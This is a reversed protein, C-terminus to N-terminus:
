ALAAKTSTPIRISYCAGAVLRDVSRGSGTMLIRREAFQAVVYAGAPVCRVPGLLGRLVERAAIIDEGQLVDLMNAVTERWAKESPWPLAVPTERARARRRAEALAPAAVGTSLIGERVLRELADIEDSQRTKPADRESIAREERLMKVGETVAAPSLMQERVHALILTEAAVRPFSSRNACGYQGASHYTGCVYRRQSGGVVILKSGCQACELLGSLIYRPKAGRGPYTKFRAQVRAWTAPDVMPECARVIWETEPRERRVRTGTDPDKVWQSRNWVVRGIYRENQLLSHLASVVWNGRVRSRPKWSSGPSPVGRANLDSAIGRMTEGSAFREFIERVIAPDAYAKGGTPKGDKARMQLASRTRDAIMARFEESMIGSLGAQMRATRSDSDYGDQVGLVRVGRHRLRSLLPALDQSRSLRSLDMVLLVDRAAVIAAQAGPRNGMAAGSIGRDGFEAEVTWGNAAAYERCVRLQDEISSETQMETSFRAYIVATTM